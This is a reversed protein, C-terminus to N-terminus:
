RLHYLSLMDIKQAFWAATLEDSLIVDAIVEKYAHVAGIKPTHVTYAAAVRIPFDGQEQVVGGAGAIHCIGLVGTVELCCIQIHQCAALTQQGLESTVEWLPAYLKDSCRLSVFSKRM